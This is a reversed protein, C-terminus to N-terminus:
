ARGRTRRHVLNVLAGGAQFSYSQREFHRAPKGIHLSRLASHSIPAARTRSTASGAAQADGRPIVPNWWRIHVESLPMPATKSMCCAVLPYTQSVVDVPTKRKSPTRNWDM